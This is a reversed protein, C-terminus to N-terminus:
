EVPHRTQLYLVALVVRLIELKRNAAKTRTGGIAHTPNTEINVTDRRCRRVTLTLCGIDIETTHLINFDKAARERGQIPIGRATHYIDRGFGSLLRGGNFRAAVVATESGPAVAKFGSTRHT